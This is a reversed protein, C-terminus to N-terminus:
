YVSDSSLNKNAIFKILQNFFITDASKSVIFKGHSRRIGVNTAIVTPFKIKNKLIYKNHMFNDVEIVRIKIKKENKLISLESSLKPRNKSPNWEV